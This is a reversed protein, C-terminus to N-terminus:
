LHYGGLAGIGVDRFAPRGQDHPDSGDDSRRNRSGQFQLVLPGLSRFVGPDKEKFVRNLTFAVDEADMTTGDHMQVGDRLKFEWVTPEIQSWETALGPKFTVPNSYSDREILTDYVNYLMPAANNGTADQADLTAPHTSVAIRLEQAQAAGAILVASLATTTLLTKM